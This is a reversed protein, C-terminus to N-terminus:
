RRLKMTFRRFFARKKYLFYFDAAALPYSLSCCGMLWIVAAGCDFATITSQPARVVNRRAPKPSKKLATVFYPLFRSTTADRQSRCYFLRGSAYKGCRQMEPSAENCQTGNLMVAKIPSQAHKQNCLKISIGFEWYCFVSGSLLKKCRRCFQSSHNRALYQLLFFGNKLPQPQKTSTKTNVICQQHTHQDHINFV